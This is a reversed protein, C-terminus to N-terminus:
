QQLISGSRNPEPHGTSGRKDAICARAIESLEQARRSWTFTRSIHDHLTSLRSECGEPHRLLLVISEAMEEASDAVSVLERATPELFEM